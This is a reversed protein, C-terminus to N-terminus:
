RGETSQLHYVSKYIIGHINLSTFDSDLLPSSILRSLPAWASQLALRTSSQWGAVLVIISVSWALRIVARFPDDTLPM